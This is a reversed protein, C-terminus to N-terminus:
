EIKVLFLASRPGPPIIEPAHTGHSKVKSEWKLVYRENGVQDTNKGNQLVVSLAPDNTMRNFIEKPYKAKVQILTDLLKVNKPNIAYRGNEGMENDWDIALIGEKSIGLDFRAGFSMQDGGGKFKWRFNWDSLKNIIWEGNRFTTAYLQTLGNEDYKLYAIIPVEDIIRIDFKGNHMGGKSPVDDVIVKENDPTFPLEVAEGKINKWNLFDTSTAYCLQHSTEVDPTWRWMWVCHFNGQPGTIFKSYASRNSDEFIGKFLGDKLLMNWTQTKTDFKNVWNNGNGSEGSRYTYYLHGDKDNFYKPYTVANENVGTMKNRETLSHIDFPKESKYYVLPVNHMNGSVHIFGMEDFGLVVYNHSDWVLKSSLTKKEWHRTGLERTAVTMMRNKDYYAVYQKNGITQLDFSVRNAAWVSDIFLSDTIYVELSDTKLISQLMDNKEEKCQILFFMLILVSFPFLKKM